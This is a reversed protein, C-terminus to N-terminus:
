IVDGTEMAVSGFSACGFSRGMITSNGADRSNCNGPRESRV